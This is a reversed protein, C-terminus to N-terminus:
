DRLTFAGTVKCWAITFYHNVTHLTAFVNDMAALDLRYGFKKLWKVLSNNRQQRPVLTRSGTKVYHYSQLGHLNLQNRVELSLELSTCLAQKLAPIDLEIGNELQSDDAEKWLRGNIGTLGHGESDGEGGACLKIIPGATIFVCVGEQGGGGKM